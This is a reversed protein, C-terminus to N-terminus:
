RAVVGRGDRIGAARLHLPLDQLHAETSGSPFSDHWRIMVWLDLEPVCVQGGPRRIVPLDM